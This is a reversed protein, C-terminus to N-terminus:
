SHRTFIPINHLDYVSVTKDDEPARSAPEVPALHDIERLHRIVETSPGPVHPLLLTPQVREPPGFSSIEAM